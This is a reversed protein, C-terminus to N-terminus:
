FDTFVAPSGLSNLPVPQEKALEPNDLLLKTVIIRIKPYLPASSKFTVKHFHTDLVSQRGVYITTKHELKDYLKTVYSEAREITKKANYGLKQEVVDLAHTNLWEQFSPWYKKLLVAAIVGAAAGVLAVGILIVFM